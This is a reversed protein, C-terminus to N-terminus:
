DDNRVTLSPDLLKAILGPGYRNDFISFYEPEIDAIFALMGALKLNEIATNQGNFARHLSARVLRKRDRGVTVRGDDSLVLGTVVRRYKNTATVTKSENIVLKPHANENIVHRLRRDVVTLYGTRLASFTLDDAYRTYTVKDSAVASSIKEDFDYMLVNSLWPSSPAGMALRLDALGAARHFFLRGSLAIDDDQSFVSNKKCYSQWDAMRISHFFNQFDYKLIPGNGAHREANSRISQGKRYAMATDHVPLHRLRHALVRQLAKVERAPQSILRQGGNRKPIMYKKYSVPARMLITRVDLETLGTAAALLPVLKSM